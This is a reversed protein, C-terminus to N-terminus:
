NKKTYDRSHYNNINGSYEMRPTSTSDNSTTGSKKM